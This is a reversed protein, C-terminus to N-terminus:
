WFFSNLLYLTNLEVKHLGFHSTMGMWLYRSILLFINNRLKKRFMEFLIAEWKSLM